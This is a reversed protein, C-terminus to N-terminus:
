PNLEVTLGDYALHITEPLEAEVRTHGVHHNVHVLYTKAARIKQAVAVAQALSLHAPHPQPRLAGLVLVKVGRFAEIVADPVMSVDTCYGLPGLRYVTSQAQGHPLSYANVNLDFLEFASAIPTFVLKPLDPNDGARDARAYGFLKDLRHIHDPMAYVPIPQKQIQNFRRLDDLGFIHDAHTHTVLVADVRRVKHLLCQLRLEPTCDILINHDDVGILSSCRMRKDRPDTSTCVPCDCAIM